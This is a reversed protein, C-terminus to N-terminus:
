KEAVIYAIFARCCEGHEAPTFVGDGGGKGDDGEWYVTSRRFGAEELIERAEPITWVRWDYTFAKKLMSGDRFKFHIHCLTENTVPDCKEQDWIYTYGRAKRGIQRRERQEKLSEWGGYIDLFFLGDRGLSGRVTRFYELLRGRTKFIWWSFNMALVIDMRGTGPGPDLVDRQLLRVRAAAAPRLKSLNHALGWDLTARDLDLGVATNQPRRKVWECASLATGCFDERLRAAKRKRTNRFTQDVFDIESDVSQVSQQYLVHRDVRTAILRADPYPKAAPAKRPM